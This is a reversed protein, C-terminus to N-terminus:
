TGQELSKTKKEQSHDWGQCPSLMAVRKAIAEDIPGFSEKVEVGVLIM